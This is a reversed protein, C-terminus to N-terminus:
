RQITKSQTKEWLGQGADDMTITAHSCNFLGPANLGRMVISNSDSWVPIPERDSHSVDAAVRVLGASQPRILNIERTESPALRAIWFSFVIHNEKDVCSKVDMDAIRSGQMIPKRSSLPIQFGWEPTGHPAVFGVDTRLNFNISYLFADTNNKISFTHTENPSFTNPENPMFVPYKGYVVKSPDIVFLPPSTYDNLWYFFAGLLVLGVLRCTLRFLRNEISRCSIVVAPIGSIWALIFLWSLDKMRTGLVAFVITALISVSLGFTPIEHFPTKKPLVTTLTSKGKAELRSRWVERRLSRRQHSDM